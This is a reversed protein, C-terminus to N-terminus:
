AVGILKIGAITIKNGEEIFYTIEVEDQNVQNSYAEVTCRVYGKDLYYQEIKKRDSKLTSEDFFDKQSAELEKALKKSKINENGKFIIKSIVPKEAVEYIVKVSDTSIEETFVAVDEFKGMGFIASIDESLVSSKFEQGVEASIVNAIEKDSVNVNGKIEVEEILASNVISATASLVFAAAIILRYIQKNM